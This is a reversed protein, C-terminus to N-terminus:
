ATLHGLFTIINALDNTYWDSAKTAYYNLIVNSTNDLGTDEGTPIDNFIPQFRYYYLQDLTYQSTLLLTEAVSEESGGGAERILNSLITIPNVTSLSNNNIVHKQILQTLEYAYSGEGPVLGTGLSLVCYRNANPKVMKGLALGMLAPNNLYVGGDSYQHQPEGFSIPCTDSALYLPAASTALAVNKILENQGIFRSNNVNSFSVFTGTDTQYSPILVNTQLNALTNTGFFSQLTAALLGTGYDAAYNGSSHYFPTDSAILGLIEASTLTNVRQGPTPYFVPPILGNGGLTFIYPGTTTFFSEIESPAKGSAFALSMIGGISTGCIVDFYSALASPNIGWLSIFQQLFKLSLYGREGGGDLSLIRITNIDM